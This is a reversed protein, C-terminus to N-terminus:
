HGVPGLLAPNVWIALFRGFFPDFKADAQECLRYGAEAEEGGVSCVM